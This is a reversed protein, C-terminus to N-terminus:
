MLPLVLVFETWDPEPPDVYLLDGGHARAIERAISLGLGHSADRGTRSSEARFFRQFVRPRLNEPIGPGTNKIRFIAKRDSAVLACEAIGGPVNYKTSNDLLNLLIRWIHAPDGRVHINDDIKVVVKIERSEGLLEADECAEQVLASLNVPQQALAASGADLHTLLLLNETIRELRAIEEQLSLLKGEQNAPTGPERLFREIEGRMITLPTRLEHSADAAFRKTQAFNKELRDLMANFVTALRYIEDRANTVPVRRALKEADIQETAVILDRIPALARGAVWWGGAAAICLVVPMAMSFALLIHGFTEQVDELSYILVFKSSGQTFAGIRNAGNKGRVSHLTPTTLAKRALSESLKPSLKLVRGSEDFLAFSLLPQDRIIQDVMESTAQVNSLTELNTADTKMETDVANIQQSYLSLFAAGSFLLLTAAVLAMTWLAFRWRIPLPRM